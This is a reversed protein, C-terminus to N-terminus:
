IDFSSIKRTKILRLSNTFFRLSSFDKQKKLLKLAKQNNAVVEVIKSGQIKSKMETMKRIIQVM